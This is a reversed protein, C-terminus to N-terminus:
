ARNRSPNPLLLDLQPLADPHWPNIAFNASEIAGAYLNCLQRVMGLDLYHYVEVNRPLNSLALHFLRLAPRLRRGDKPHDPRLHQKRLHVFAGALQILSKYFHADVGTERLWLHELVDHAEYYEGRNFCVFYALYERPLAIEGDGIESVNLDMEDLFGEIRQAKTLIPEHTSM